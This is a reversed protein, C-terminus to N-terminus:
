KTTEKGLATYVSIADLIHRQETKHNGSAGTTILIYERGNIRALTALCLGAQKTYGTKGGLIEGCPLAPDGLAEFLTSRFTFGDTHQETPKVSHRRSCFIERFTENQLAYRLLASLDSVTTYHNKNHLGTCNTFHTDDMGLAKAKENMRDVFASEDGAIVRALTICCEAGSPLLAGYILDAATGTEDPMFGAMSADEAYLAPFIDAPLTIIQSLDDLEELAIVATMIKTLSAPYVKKDANKEAVIEDTDLRILIASKSSLQSFGLPDNHISHIFSATLLALLLLICLILILVGCRKRRRRPSSRAPKQAM